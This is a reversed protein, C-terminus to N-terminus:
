KKTRVFNVKGYSTMFRSKTNSNNDIIDDNGNDQLTSSPAVSSASNNDKANNSNSSVQSEVCELTDSASLLSSSLEDFHWQPKYKRSLLALDFVGIVEEGEKGNNNIKSSPPTFKIM